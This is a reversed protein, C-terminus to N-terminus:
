SESQRLREYRAFIDNTIKTATQNHSALCLAYLVSNTSNKMLVPKSVYEFLSGLQEAYLSALEEAKITERSLTPELSPFLSLQRPPQYIQDLWNTSGMVKNLQELVEGEPRQDRPLLRTVGMVSFNVFIDCTRTNALKRVTEWDVQLGYPDLFVFARQKSAYTIRPIIDNCLIENCNGQRIEITCDPFEDRLGQIRDIRRPSVDIFWYADFKPETQLARLPSGDIYRQEDEKSRPRVSGAFADIYYYAKLWSQKQKNMIASYAKLYKALLDLKEESWRGIIDEGESGLRSM